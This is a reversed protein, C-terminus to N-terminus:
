FEDRSRMFFFWLGYIGLATGIPFSMISLFSAVIGLIRAESTEQQLKWGTLMFFVAFVLLMWNGAFIGGALLWGLAQFAGKIFFFGALLRTHESITM